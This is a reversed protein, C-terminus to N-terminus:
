NRETKYVWKNRGGAVILGDKKFKAFVDRVLHISVGTKEAAENTSVIIGHHESLWATLKDTQSAIRCSNKGLERMRAFREGSAKQAALLAPTQEPRKRKKPEGIQRLLDELSTQTQRLAAHVASLRLFSESSVGRTAAAQAYLEKEKDSIIVMTSKNNSYTIEKLAVASGVNRSAANRVLDAFTIGQQKAALSILAHEATSMRIVVRNSRKPM